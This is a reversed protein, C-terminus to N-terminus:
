KSNVLKEIEQREIPIDKSLVDHGKATISIDEELRIGIGRLEKPISTDTHSFYLGPEITFAMGPTLPLLFSPVPERNYQQPAIDHVDIGLWHGTRHMFYPKYLGRAFIHSPNGQLVGIDVLSRSLSKAAAEHIDDLCNGSEAKLLADSVAERVADYVEAQPSTFTGSVPFVRTIDGSYNKFRTGCDILVLDKKWIPSFSPHHHLVTANKGSAVITQFATGQGGFKAFLSELTEACHKENKMTTIYPALEKLARATIESARRLFGTEEKDKVLRMQSTVLRLDKLIAPRGFQPSAPNSLYDWVLTDVREHSGPSYNIARCGHVLVSFDKEFDEIPRIDDVKFRRRARRIGLREGTWREEEPNRDRLYLISRIGDNNKLVLVSHSEELGTLYFFDSDPVYPYNQDRSMHREPSAPIIAIEGKLQQLLKKRRTQLRNEWQQRPSTSM